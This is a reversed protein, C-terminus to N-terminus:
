NIARHKYRYDVPVAPTDGDKTPKAEESIEGCVAARSHIRIQQEFEMLPACIHQYFNM